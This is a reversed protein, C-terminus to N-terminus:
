DRKWQDAYEMRRPYWEIFQRAADADDPPMKELTVGTYDRAGIPEGSATCRMLDFINHYSNNHWVKRCLQWCWLGQNEDLYYIRFYDAVIFRYKLYIEKSKPQNSPHDADAADVAWGYCSGALMANTQATTINLSANFADVDIKTSAPFYGKEGAVIFIPEQTSPHKAACIKPLKALHAKIVQERLYSM